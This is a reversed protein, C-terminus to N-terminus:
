EPGPHHDLQKGRDPHGHREPDVRVVKGRDTDAPDQGAVYVREQEDVAISGALIMLGIPTDNAVEFITGDPEM